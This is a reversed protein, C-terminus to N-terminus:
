YFMLVDVLCSTTSAPDRWTAAAMRKLPMMTERRADFDATSMKSVTNSKCMLLASIIVRTTTTSSLLTTRLIEQMKDV